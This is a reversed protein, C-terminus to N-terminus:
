STYIYICKSFSPFCFDLRRPTTSVLFSFFRMYDKQTLPCSAEIGFPLHFVFIYRNPPLIRELKLQQPASWKGEDGYSM